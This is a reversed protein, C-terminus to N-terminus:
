WLWVGVPVSVQGAGFGNQRLRAYVDDMETCSVDVHEPGPAHHTACNVPSWLPAPEPGPAPSGQQAAPAPGPREEVLSSCKLIRLIWRLAEDQHVGTPSSLGAPM